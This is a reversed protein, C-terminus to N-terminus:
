SAPLRAQLARASIAAHAHKHMVAFQSLQCHRLCRCFQVRGGSLLDTQGPGQALAVGTTCPRQRGLQQGRQICLLLGFTGAEQQHLAFGFPQKGFEVCRLCKCLLRQLEEGSQAFGAADAVALPQCGAHQDVLALVCLADLAQLQRLLSGFLGAIGRATRQTQHRLRAPRHQGIRAIRLCAEIVPDVM